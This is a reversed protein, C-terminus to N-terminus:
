AKRTLRKIGIKREKMVQGNKKKKESLTIRVGVSRDDSKTIVRLIVSRIPSWETRNGYLSISCEKNKM